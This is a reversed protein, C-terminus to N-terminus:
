GVKSLVWGYAILTQHWGGLSKSGPSPLFSPSSPTPGSRSPTVTVKRIAAGLADLAFARARRRDGDDAGGVAVRPSAGRLPILVAPRNANTKLLEEAKKM